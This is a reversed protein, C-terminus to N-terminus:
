RLTSTFVRAKEGNKDILQLVQNTNSIDGDTLLFVFRPFGKKAPMDFAKKLADYINTGGMDAQFYQVNECAQTISSQSYAISQPNMVGVDSGFSVVNFFSDQPLSKLFLLLSEKAMAIRAGSMSGSRDLLFIYEGRVSDLSYNPDEKVNMMANKYVEESSKSEFNALFTVMACYGGDFPTITHDLSDETGNNFLLVFDKTPHTATTTTDDLTVHCTHNENGFTTAVKHSPSKLLNISSPSQVDVTVNWKYAQGTSASITPYQVLLPIDSKLYDTFNSGNYRPTLTSFLRFCWFRGLSVELKQIYSYTISISTNPLINGLLVKMVDGTDENIESYAATHGKSIAAQYDHKAEEKPKVIGKIVVDNFKAEFSDFCAEPSIPFFFHSELLHDSHNHYVQTHQVRAVNYIINVTIDLSQLPVPIQSAPYLGWVRPESSLRPLPQSKDTLGNFLSMKYTLPKIHRFSANYLM